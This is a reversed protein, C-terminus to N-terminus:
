REQLSRRRENKKEEKMGKKIHRIMRRLAMKGAKKALKRLAVRAAYMVIRKIVWKASLRRREIHDTLWSTGLPKDDDQTDHRTSRFILRRYLWLVNQNPIGTFQRHRGVAANWLDKAFNHCNWEFPHYGTNQPTHDQARDLWDTFNLNSRIDPRGASLFLRGSDFSRFICSGDLKNPCVHVYHNSKEMRYTQLQSGLQLTFILFSHSGGFIDAPHIVRQTRWELSLLRARRPFMPEGRVRPMHLYSVQSGNKVLPVQSGRLITHDGEGEAQTNKRRIEYLGFALLAILGVSTACWRDWGM